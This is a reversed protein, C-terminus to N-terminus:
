DTQDVRAEGRETVVGSFRLATRVLALHSLAQPFNGTFRKANVDYEEALLGLDNAVALVREFSKRAAERRGQIWQCDALWCTCALFAGEPTEARPKKRHVLGDVVLDREIAEITRSVREDDIPLFGLLPLLLLAADLSEGGYYGVFHGLGPVYGEHCIEDHMEKRLRRMRHLDADGSAGCFERYRVYRDIAAWASVKSYVFHRPTGRSEWLGNDPLRWEAEVHRAVGALLQEEQKSREIGARASIYVSDVLEGFVDLQRQAAAANGIRVPPTWRYGPLWSAKWEELRRSGDVRYLIRMKEPEGAVARLVWDRWQRAETLYGADVLAILRFAADRIWCYRYDWNSDSGAREPLSTTVAAIMGGTPRYIMAKLVILSRRVADGWETQRDFRGIWERWHNLTAALAHDTEVPPPEPESTSGYILTFVREESKSLEFECLIAAGECRLDLPAHLVALDPGVRATARRGDVEIWPRASGYDFSLRLESRMAVRGRLGQAKRILTPNKDRIPMFDTVRVMGSGTEFETELVLSDGVYRRAARASEIPALKWRGNEATGLLAAFCADSDFRPLCLWDISGSLHVLAATEGDGILGYEEIPNSM